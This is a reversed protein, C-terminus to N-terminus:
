DTAEAPYGGIKRAVIRQTTSPALQSIQRILWADAGIASRKKRKWAADLVSAAAASPQLRATRSLFRRNVEYSAATGSREAASAFIDTRVGGVLCDTVTAPSLEPRLANVVIGLAAKSASYSGFGEATVLSFASNLTVFRGASERLSTAAARAMNVAGVVNTSYVAQMDESGGDETLLGSSAIGAAYFVADIRRQQRCWDLCSEADTADFGSKLDLTSVEAGVDVLQHAIESGIGGEAGVVVVHEGKWAGAADQTRNSM